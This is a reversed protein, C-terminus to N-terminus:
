SNSSNGSNTNSAPSGFVPAISSIKADYPKIKVVSPIVAGVVFDTKIIGSKEVSAYNWIGKENKYVLFGDYTAYFENPVNSPKYVYFNMSHYAPQTVLTSKEACEASMCFLLIFFLISFFKKM